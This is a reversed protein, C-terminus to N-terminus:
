HKDPPPLEQESDITISAMIPMDAAAVAGNSGSNPTAALRDVVDMGRVVRGFAAYAGDLSTSDAHVIFFQSGASNPNGARAMSLVGREHSLGNPFGNQEFEGFITYGPGGTGLSNPCGGQIVFGQIIRHFKLGDYYGQRALYVFNRVTQPAVDPYLELVIVGGDAMTITAQIADPTLSDKPQAGITITNTKEDWGVAVGFAESVFRLPVLTRGQIIIGPQDIHWVKGNVTPATSGIQLVVVAGDKAATVTQTAEDWSVSAGLEAFIARLPVLTRGNVIQPPVDFVLRRGDVFVDIGDAAVAVAAATAGAGLAASGVSFVLLVAFMVSIFKRM